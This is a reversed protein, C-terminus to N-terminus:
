LMLWRLDSRSTEHYGSSPLNGYDILRDRIRTYNKLKFKAKIYCIIARKLGNPQSNQEQTAYLLTILMSLIQTYALPYPLLTFLM